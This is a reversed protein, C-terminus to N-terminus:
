RPPSPVSTSRRSNRTARSSPTRRTVASMRGSFRAICRTHSFSPKRSSCEASSRSTRASIPSHPPLPPAHAAQDAVTVNQVDWGERLMVVSAICSVPSKDDDVDRAVTRAKDLDRKSVEGSRDTHIVLLRDGGFEAPYKRQLWDGVDDAECTDNMMIFLVPKRGLLAEPKQTAYELADKSHPQVPKIDLWLSQLPVGPMEDLYRKQAPVTGPSTQVIRGQECLKQMTEKSFRWYRIVGLFEYRPNGKAAQGRGPATIDRLRYRRGDPDKHRYFVDIYAEDCPTYQPDWVYNESKTCPFISDHIRGM